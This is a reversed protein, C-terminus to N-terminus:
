LDSPTSPLSSQRSLQRRLLLQQQSASVTTPTANNAQAATFGTSLGMGGMGSTKAATKREDIAIARALADWLGGFLTLCLLREIPAFPNSLNLLIACARLYICVLSVTLVLLENPLLLPLNEQDGLSQGDSLHSNASALLSLPWNNALSVQSHLEGSTLHGGGGGGGCAGVACRGVGVSAAPLQKNADNVIFVLATLLCAKTTYSPRVFDILEANWSGRAVLAELLRFLAAGNGRAVGVILMVAHSDPFIKSAHRIGSSISTVSYIENACYILLKIPLFHVFKYMFDFPSYYVCYWILTALLVQKTNSLSAIVPENLLFNTLIQSSFISILNTM